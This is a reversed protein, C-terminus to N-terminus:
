LASSWVWLDDLQEPSINELVALEIVSQSLREFQTAKRVETILCNRDYEDEVNASITTVLSEETIGVNLAGL